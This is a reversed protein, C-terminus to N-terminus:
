VRTVKVRAFEALRCMMATGVGGAFAVVRDPKGQELMAKNRIFGASKGHQAWDAPFQEVTIEHAYAWDAAMKDAGRAEGEILTTVPTEQHIADLTRNLLARDRFNRGGCVLLKM